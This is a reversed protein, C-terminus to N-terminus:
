AAGRGGLPALLWPAAFGLAIAAVALAFAVLEAAQVPDRRTESPTFCPGIVRFVYAAAALGGAVGVAALGWQGGALARELLLWKGVFGGSPPLGIISVSALGFAFVTIPMRHAIGELADLRDHGFRALVTGASLFMAAKAAAHSLALYVGAAPAALALAIYLYGLQAVTSYAVLLKLRGQVLALASGWVVAGAGLWGLLQLTADGVLPAFAGQGLRIVLYFSTKVVLASLVASVPAPALAHAHPLWVHLPFLAGKVALGAFVLAVGVASALTPVVKVGLEDLALTGAQAYILAVGALYFASGALAWVLYRLASTLAGGGALAVLGVAALTALELAVYLNFLDGSVFVAALAAWLTLWLPWFRVAQHAEEGAFYSRAYLSAGLGVAATMGLMLASLWDATLLIGLPPAWGGLAHELRGAAWIAAAAAFATAASAIAALVGVGGATRPGCALACLAGALPVAVCLPLLADVGVSL